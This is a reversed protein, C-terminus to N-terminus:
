VAFRIARKGHSPFLWKMFNPTKFMCSVFHFTADTNALGSSVNM